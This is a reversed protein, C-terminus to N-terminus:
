SPDESLGLSGSRRSVVSALTKAARLRRGEEEAELRELAARAGIHSRLRDYRCCVGVIVAGEPVVDDDTDRHHRILPAVGELFPVAEVIEAGRVPHTTDADEGDYGIRGVDHLLAGYGVHELETSSLGSERGVAIALEAVREAHGVDQPRDMEAAHALAKITQAYARRIRLYLNFSNQLILTLLLAIALGWAGLSPYVRLVVAAMAIHVMYVSGLPRVLSIFGELVGPGGAAWQQAAITMVDLIAYSAGMVIGLVLIADSVTDATALPRVLVQWPSLLALVSVSRALDALRGAVVSVDEQSARVMVDLAGAVSAATLIEGTSRLSLAALGVVLTIRIRDGQPLQLTLLRSALFALTFGAVAAVNFSAGSLRSATWLGAATGCSILM